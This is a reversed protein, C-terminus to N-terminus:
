QNGHLHSHFDAAYDGFRLDSPPHLDFVYSIPSSAALPRKTNLVDRLEGFSSEDFPFSETLFFFCERGLKEVQHILSYCSVRLHIVCANMRFNRKNKSALLYSPICAADM